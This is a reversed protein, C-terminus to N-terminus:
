PKGEPNNLAQRCRTWGIHEIIHNWGNEIYNSSFGEADEYVFRTAVDNREIRAVGSCILQMAMCLAPAELFMEAYERQRSEMPEDFGVTIVCIPARGPDSQKRICIECFRKDEDSVLKGDTTASM